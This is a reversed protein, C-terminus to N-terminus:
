EERFNLLQIGLTLSFVWVHEARDTYDDSILFAPQAYEIAEFGTVAERIKDLYTYAGQQGRLDRVM